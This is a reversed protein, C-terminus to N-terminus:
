APQLSMKAQQCQRAAQLDKAANVFAPRLKAPVPLTAENALIDNLSMGVLEPAPQLRAFVTWGAFKQAHVVRDKEDIVLIGYARGKLRDGNLGVATLGDKRLLALDKYFVKMQRYAMWFQALWMVVMAGLVYGGYDVMFDVM